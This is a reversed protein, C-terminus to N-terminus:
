EANKRRRRPKAKPADEQTEAGAEPPNIPFVEDWSGFVRGCGTCKIGDATGVLLALEHKCEM